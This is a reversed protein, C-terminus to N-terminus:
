LAAPIPSFSRCGCSTLYRHSAIRSQAQSIYGQSWSCQEDTAPSTCWRKLFARSQRWRGQSLRRGLAVFPGTTAMSSGQHRHIPQAYEMWPMSEMYTDTSQGNLLKAPSNINMLDWGKAWQVKDQHQFHKQEDEVSTHRPFKKGLTWRPCVPPNYIGASPTFPQRPFFLDRHWCSSSWIGPRQRQDRHGWSIRGMGRHQRDCHHQCCYLSQTWLHQLPKSQYGVWVVDAGPVSALSLGDVVSLHSLHIDVAGHKIHSSETITNDSRGTTHIKGTRM